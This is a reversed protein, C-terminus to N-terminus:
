VESDSCNQNRTQVFKTNRKHTTKPLQKKGIPTTHNQNKVKPRQNWKRTQPLRPKNKRQKEKRNSNPNQKEM